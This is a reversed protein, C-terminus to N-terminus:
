EGESERRVYVKRRGWGRFTIGSAPDSAFRRLEMTASTRKMGVLAMYDYVHMFAHEELYSLARALREEETYPSVKVRSVGGRTLDCYGNVRRALRKDARFNVGNVVISQANRKPGDGEIPDMEKGKRVGLRAKFTGLGDLTVSQGQALCRALEDAASVLVHAVTARNLGSGPYAVREMFEDMDVNREIKMRYYARKEGSGTLDNMEQKIYKAM